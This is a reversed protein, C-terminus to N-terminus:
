QESSLIFTLPVPTSDLQRYQQVPFAARACNGFTAHREHLIKEGTRVLVIM